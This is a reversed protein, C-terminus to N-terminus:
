VAVGYVSQMMDKAVPLARAPFYQPFVTCVIAWECDEEFWRDRGYTNLDRLKYPIQELREDSLCYGGHSPTSYFTIGEAVETTSDATGWPTQVSNFMTKM